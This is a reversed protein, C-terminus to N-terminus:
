QGGPLRGDAEHIGRQVSRGTAEGVVNTSPSLVCPARIQELALLAEVCCRAPVRNRAPAGDVVPAELRRECLINYSLQHGVDDCRVTTSGRGLTACDDGSLGHEVCAAAM